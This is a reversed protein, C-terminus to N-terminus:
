MVLITKVLVASVGTNLYYVGQHLDTILTEVGPKLVGSRIRKGNVDILQYPQPATHKSVVHITGRSPIPWISIETEPARIGNVTKIESYHISGNIDTQRIRYWTTGQFSNSDKTEYFQPLSSNGMLGKSPIFQVPDFGTEGARKRELYFGRNNIEQQTHWNLTVTHANNRFATFQLDQVPLIMQNANPQLIGLTVTTNGYLTQILPEGINWDVSLTGNKFTGGATNVGAPVIQQSTAKVTWFFAILLIMLHKM